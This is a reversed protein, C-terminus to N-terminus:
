LFSCSDWCLHPSALGTANPPGMPAPGGRSFHQGGAKKQEGVKGCKFFIHPGGGQLDAPGGSFLDVRRPQPLRIGMGVITPGFRKLTGPSL